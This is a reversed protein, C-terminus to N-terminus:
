WKFEPSIHDFAVEADSEFRTAHPIMAHIRYHKGLGKTEVFDTLCQLSRALKSCEEPTLDNDALSGIAEFAPTLQDLAEKGFITM